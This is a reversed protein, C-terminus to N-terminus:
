APIPDLGPGFRSESSERLLVHDPHELRPDAALLEEADYRPDAAAATRPCARSNVLTPRAPAHRLVEGAGRRELRSPWRSAADRSPLWRRCAPTERPEGFLICPGGPTGAGIRGRLQHLQRSATLARGGRDPMVTADSTSASRSEAPAVLVDASGSAFRAGDRRKQAPPCRATILKCAPRQVRTQLREAELFAANPKSRM